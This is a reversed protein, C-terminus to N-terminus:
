FDKKAVLVIYEGKEKIDKSRSLIDEIEGYILNEYM